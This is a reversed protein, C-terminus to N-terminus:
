HAHEYEPWTEGLIEAYARGEHQAFRAITQAANREFSATYILVTPYLLALLCALPASLGRLGRLTGVAVPVHWVRSLIGSVVALAVVAVPLSFFWIWNLSYLPTCTTIRAYCSFGQMAWAMMYYGVTVGIVTLTTAAASWGIGKRDFKRWLLFAAFAWAAVGLCLNDTREGYNELRYSLTIMGFLALFIGRKTPRSLPQGTRIKPSKLAAAAFMGALWVSMISSLIALGGLHLNMGKRLLSYTDFKESGRAWIDIARQGRAQEEVFWRDFEAAGVSKLYDDFQKSKALNYELSDMDSPKEFYPAGGPRVVAIAQISREQFAGNMNDYARSLAGLELVSRRFRLGKQIDGALESDVADATLVRAVERLVYGHPVIISNAQAYRSWSDIYGFALEYLRIKGAIEDMTHSNWVPLAVAKELVSVAVEDEHKAIHGLTQMVLFYSNDPEARMGTECLRNWLELTESRPPVPENDNWSAKPNLIEKRGTRMEGLCLHRLLVAAVAPDNPWREALERLGKTSVFQLPPDSHGYSTTQRWEYGREISAAIQVGIDNPARKAAEISRHSVTKIEDRDAFYSDAATVRERSDPTGITFGLQQRVIGSTLPLFAVLAIVAITSWIWFSTRFLLERM